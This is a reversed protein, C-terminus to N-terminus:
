DEYVTTIAFRPDKKVERTERSGDPLDYWEFIPTGKESLFKLVTNPLDYSKGPILTERFELLDTSLYVPLPNHPQDKRRFVVRQKPHLDLPAQKTPYLLERAKKNLERAKKNYAKYDALTELPMDHIDVEKPEEVKKPTETIRRLATKAM